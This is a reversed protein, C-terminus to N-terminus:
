TRHWILLDMVRAYRGQQGADTSEIYANVGREVRAVSVSVTDGAQGVATPSYIAVAAGIAAALADRGAPTAAYVTVQLRVEALGDGGTMHAGRVDSTERTVAYPMVVNQPASESYMREGILGAVAATHLLRYQMQREIM